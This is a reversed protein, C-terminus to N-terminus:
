EFIVYLWFGRSQSPDVLISPIESNMKRAREVRRSRGFIKGYKHLGKVRVPVPPGLLIAMKSSWACPANNASYVCIENPIGWRTNSTFPDQVISCLGNM